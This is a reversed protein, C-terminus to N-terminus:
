LHASGHGAEMEKYTCIKVFKLFNKNEYGSM